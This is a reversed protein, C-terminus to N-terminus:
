QDITKNERMLDGIDMLLKQVVEPDNGDQFGRLWGEADVIVFRTSHAPTGDAEKALPQLLGKIVINQIDQPNGTLFKWQSPNAGCRAAYKALITPQDYEPDVSFSILEVAGRAKGLKNNLEAMRSTMLPCPGQCRTFIFNAVWIKGKLDSLTLSSGDQATFHFAPVQSIKQLHPPVAAPRLKQFNLYALTIAATVAIFTVVWGLRPIRKPSLSESTTSSPSSSLGSEM